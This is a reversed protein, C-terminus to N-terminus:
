SSSVSNSVDPRQAHLSHPDSLFLLTDREIRGKAQAPYNVKSSDSCSGEGQRLVLVRRTAWELGREAQPPRNDEGDGKGNCKGNVEGNGKNKRRQTDEHGVFARRM